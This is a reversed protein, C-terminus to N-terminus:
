IGAGPEAKLEQGPVSLSPSHSPLQLIFYIKKEGLHNQNTSKDYYYLIYAYGYGICSDM